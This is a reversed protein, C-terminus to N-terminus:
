SLFMEISIKSSVGLFIIAFIFIAFISPFIIDDLKKQNVVVAVSLRM